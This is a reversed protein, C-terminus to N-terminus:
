VEAMPLHMWCVPLPHIASWCAAPAAAPPQAPAPEAGQALAPPSGAVVATASTMLIAILTKYM